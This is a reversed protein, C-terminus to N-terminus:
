LIEGQISAVDKIKIEGSMLKPLLVDRIKILTLIEKSNSEVSEDFPFALKEFREIITPDTLIFTLDNFDKKNISGFVTGESEYVGFKEQLHRLSYSTYSRSGSKHRVAAVGRGICCNEAAMNIAGVPARVSVLTDGKKAMRKPASCYVRRTPYRFGFDRNGQYFPLGNEEENYTTGPPSQGMVIDFDDGLKGAKWGRPIMGLESDEFSDPFLSATEADMGEPQRGEAKARVPDFDVFWSKFIARAIAELTENMKQNMEIKDDLTGLIHSIARQESLPPTLLPANLFDEKRLHIQTSGIHYGKIYSRYIPGNCWYVIYRGDFTESFRVVNAGQNVLFQTSKPVPSLLGLFDADQTLDRTTLLYDGPKTLRYNKQTVVQPDMFRKESHEIRGFPKVDGKALVPIGYTSYELKLFPNGSTFFTVADHMTSNKWGVPVDNDM